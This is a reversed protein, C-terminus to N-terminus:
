QRLFYILNITFKQEKLSGGPVVYSLPAVHLNIKREISFFGLALPKFTKTKVGIDNNWVGFYMTKPAGVCSAKDTTGKSSRSLNFMRNLNMKWEKVNCSRIRIRISAM